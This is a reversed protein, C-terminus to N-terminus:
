CSDIGPIYSKLMLRQRQSCNVRNYMSRVLCSFLTSSPKILSTHVKRTDSKGEVNSLYNDPTESIRMLLLTQLCPLQPYLNYNNDVKNNGWNVIIKGIQDCSYKKQNTSNIHESVQAM